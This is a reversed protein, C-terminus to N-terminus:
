ATHLPQVIQSASSCAARYPSDLRSGGWSFSREEGYWFQGAPMRAMSGAWAGLISAGSSCLKLM